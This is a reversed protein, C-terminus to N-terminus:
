DNPNEMNSSNLNEGRASGSLKLTTSISIGLNRAAWSSGSESQCSTSPSVRCPTQPGDEPLLLWRVATSPSSLSSSLSPSSSSFSFSSSVSTSYSHTGPSHGFQGLAGRKCNHLLLLLTSCGLAAVARISEERGKSGVALSM